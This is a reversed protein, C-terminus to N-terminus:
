CKVINVIGMIPGMVLIMTVLLNVALEWTLKDYFTNSISTKEGFIM